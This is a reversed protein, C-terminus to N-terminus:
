HIGQCCQCFLFFFVGAFKLGILQEQYIEIMALLFFMPMKQSTSTSKKDAVSIKYGIHYTKSKTLEVM